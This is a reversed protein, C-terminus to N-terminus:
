QKEQPLAAQKPPAPLRPLPKLQARLAALPDANKTKILNTVTFEYGIATDSLKLGIEIGFEIGSNEDKKKGAHLSALLMDEVAKPVFCQGGVFTEGTDYRTAEFSGLFAVFPGFDSSGTKVGHASGIVRYLPKTGTFDAVRMEAATRKLDGMITKPSLKRKFSLEAEDGETDEAGDQTESGETEVPTLTEDSPVTENSQVIPAEVVPTKEPAAKKAAPKAKTGSERKSM